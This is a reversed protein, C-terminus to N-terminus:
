RTTSRSSSRRPTISRARGFSRGATRYLTLMAGLTPPLARRVGKPRGSTGSTYIMAGGAPANADLVAPSAQAMHAELSSFAVVRGTFHAPVRPALEDSVFVARAGSDALVYALEDEVLHQSLPTFVLGGVLMAMVLEFGEARNETLLTVTDGPALGLEAFVTVMRRIREDLEAFSRQVVGDDLALDMKQACEFLDM